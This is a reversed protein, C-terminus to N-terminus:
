FAPIRTRPMAGPANWVPIVMGLPGGGDFFSAAGTAFGFFLVPLRAAMLESISWYGLRIPLASSNARNIRSMTSFGMNFPSTTLSSPATLIGVLNHNIAILTLRFNRVDLVSVRSDSFCSPTVDCYFHAIIIFRWTQDKLLTKRALKYIGVHIIM